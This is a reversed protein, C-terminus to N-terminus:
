KSVAVGILGLGLVTATSQWFLISAKQNRSETNLKDAVAKWDQSKQEALTYQTTTNTVIQNLNVIRDEYTKILKDYLEEIKAYNDKLFAVKENSLDDKAKLLENYKQVQLDNTKKLSSVENQFIELTKRINNVEEPTYEYNGNPLKTAAFLISPQLIMMILLITIFKKM